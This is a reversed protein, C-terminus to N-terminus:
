ENPKLGKMLMSTYYESYADVITFALVTIDAIGIVPLFDAILAYQDPGIAEAIGDILEVAVDFKGQMYDVVVNESNEKRINEMAKQSVANDHALAEYIKRCGGPLSPNIKIDTQKEGNVFFEITLMSTNTEVRRMYGGIIQFLGSMM